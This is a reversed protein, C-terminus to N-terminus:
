DDHEQKNKKCKDKDKHKDDQGEDDHGEHCDHDEHNANWMGEGNDCQTTCNTVHYVSKHRKHHGCGVVLTGTFLVFIIMM